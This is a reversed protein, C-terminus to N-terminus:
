QFEDTSQRIEVLQNNILKDISEQSILSFGIKQMLQTPIVKVIQPYVLYFQRNLKLNTESLGKVNVARTLESILKDGYSARDAGKQEFEVIYFGILWNRITLHKNVSKFANQQLESHTQQITNVLNKFNM